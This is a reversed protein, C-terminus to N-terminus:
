HKNKNYWQQHGTQPPSMYCLRISNNKKKVTLVVHILVIEVVILIIILKILLIILVINDVRDVSLVIDVSRIGGVNGVRGGRDVSLVIDVSRIGGGRGVNVVVLM